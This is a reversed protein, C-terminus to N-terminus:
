ADPARSSTSGPAAANTVATLYENFGVRKAVHFAIELPVLDIKHPVFVPEETVSKAFAWNYDDAGVLEYGHDELLQKIASPALPTVAPSV